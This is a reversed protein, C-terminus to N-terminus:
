EFNFLNLFKNNWNFEFRTRSVFGAHLIRASTTLSRDGGSILTFNLLIKPKILFNIGFLLKTNKKTSPFCSIKLVSFRVNNSIKFNILLYEGGSCGFAGSALFHNKKIWKCYFHSFKIEINQETKNFIWLFFFNCISKIKIEYNNVAPPPTEELRSLSLRWVGEEGCMTRGRRRGGGELQVWTIFLYSVKYIICHFSARDASKWLIWETQKTPARISCNPMDKIPWNPWKPLM